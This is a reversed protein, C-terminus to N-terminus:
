FGIRIGSDLESYGTTGLLWYTRDDARELLLTVSFASPTLDYAVGRVWHALADIGSHADNITVKDMVDLSFVNVGGIQDRGDVDVREAVLVPTAFRGVLYEGYAQAFVPDSQMPLDLSHTRREFTGQSTTDQVEVTIPDYTHIPRGRVQLLTVYLPGLATNSVTIKARTAEVVM